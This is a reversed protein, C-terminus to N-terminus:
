PNPLFLYLSSPLYAPVKLGEPEADTPQSGTSIDALLSGGAFLEEISSVTLPRPHFRGALPLM